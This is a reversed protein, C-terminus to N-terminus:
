MDYKKEFGRGFVGGTLTVVTFADADTKKVTKVAKDVEQSRMACLIIQRQENKYGGKAPLLTVGRNISEFLATAIEEAKNTVIFLLRGTDSGYLFTDLTYSHVVLYIASYLATELDGYSFTAIIIVIGDLFLMLRGMSFYPFKLRLVKALIDTGGTTSGRLMVFALGLGILVGGFLAAVLREGQYTPLVRAFIDIFSSSLLTVFITKFIFKGGVKLFGLTLIPINIAIIIAGTPLVPLSHNIVAAIGTVGGPSIRQPDIFYVFAFAYLASGLALFFLDALFDRVTGGLIFNKLKKM